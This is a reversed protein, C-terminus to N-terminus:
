TLPFSLKYDSKGAVPLTISGEIQEILNMIIKMGMSKKSTDITRVEPFGVGNDSICLIGTNGEKKLSIYIIGGSNGPFAYKFANAIIEITIFALTVAKKSSIDVKEPIDMEFQISSEDDSVFFSMDDVISELYEKFDIASIDSSMYLMTHVRSMANLRRVATNFPARQEAPLNKASLVMLSQIAMLNNKIRHYTERLLMEKQSTLEKQIDLNKETTKILENKLDVTAKFSAVKQMELQRQLFRYNLLTGSIGILILVVIGSTIIAWISNWLFHFNDEKKVAVTLWKTLSSIHYGVYLDAGDLRKIYQSSQKGSNILETLKGHTLNKKPFGPAFEGTFNHDEPFHAIYQGDKTLILSVVSFKDKQAPKSSLTTM